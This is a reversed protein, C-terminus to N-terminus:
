GNTKVMGYDEILAQQTELPIYYIGEDYNFTRRIFERDLLSKIIQKEKYNLTLSKPWWGGHDMMLGLLKKQHKGLHLSGFNNKNYNTPM